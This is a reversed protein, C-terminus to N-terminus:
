LLFSIVILANAKAFLSIFISEQCSAFNFYKRIIKMFFFIKDEYIMLM